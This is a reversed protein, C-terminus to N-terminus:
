TAANISVPDVILPLTTGPSITKVGGGSIDFSILDRGARANATEIAARLTCEQELTNEDIDCVDDDIDDDSEDTTRNVIISIDCLDSGIVTTYAAGQDDIGGIVALPAGMIAKNGSLAVRRGLHDGPAGDTAVLKEDFGWDTLCRSFTYAAGKESNNFWAGLIVRDGDIEGGVGLGDGSAADPATLKAQQQWGTNGEKVFVYGAGGISGPQSCPAGVLLSSGSVSVSEGFCGQNPEDPLRCEALGWASGNREYVCVGGTSNAYRPFGVAATDGDIAVSYGFLDNTNGGHTIKQVETWVSGNRQLFYAAGATTVNVPHSRSGVIATDGSISVDRGFWDLSQRDSAIVRQQETWTTGNRQFIYVRGCLVTSANESYDPAGVIITNGSIDVSLGFDETSSSILPFLKQQLAWSSGNWVYVYVAGSRYPGVRENYAGIVATDGDIAVDVGFFTNEESVTGELKTLTSSPSVNLDQGTVDKVATSLLGLDPAKPQRRMETVLEPEAITQSSVGTLFFTASSLLFFAGIYFFRM